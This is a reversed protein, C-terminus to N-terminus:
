GERRSIPVGARRAVLEALAAPTIPQIDDESDAIEQAGLLTAPWSIPASGSRGLVTYRKPQGHRLDVVVSTVQTWPIDNVSGYRSALARFDATVTTRRAFPAVFVAILGIAGPIALGVVLGVSLGPALLDGEPQLWAFLSPFNLM